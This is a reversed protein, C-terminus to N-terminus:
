KGCCDRLYIDETPEIWKNSSWLRIKIVDSVEEGESSPSYSYHSLYTHPNYSSVWQGNGKACWEALQRKTMRKPKPEEPKIRYEITLWDWTPNKSVVWCPGVLSKSKKEITKGETYAQMVEIMEATTM